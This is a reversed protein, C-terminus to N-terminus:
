LSIKSFVERELADAGIADEHPLTADIWEAAGGLQWNRYNNKAFTRLCTLEAEYKRWLSKPSNLKKAGKYMRRMNERVTEANEFQDDEIEDIISLYKAFFASEKKDKKMPDMNRVFAGAESLLCLEVAARNSESIKHGETYHSLHSYFSYKSVENDTPLGPMQDYHEGFNPSDDCVDIGYLPASHVSHVSVVEDNSSDVSSIDLGEWVHTAVAVEGGHRSSVEGTAVAISDYVAASKRPALPTPTFERPPRPPLRGRVSYMETINAAANTKAARGPSERQPPPPKKSRRAAAAPHNMAVSLPRLVSSPPRRHRYRGGGIGGDSM